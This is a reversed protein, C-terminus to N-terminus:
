KLKDEERLINVEHVVENLLQEREELLRSIDARSQELEEQLCALLVAQEKVTISKDNLRGRSVDLEEELFQMYNNEEIVYFARGDVIKLVQAYVDNLQQTAIIQDVLDKQTSSLDIQTGILEDKATQLEAERVGLYNDLIDILKDQDASQDYNSATPQEDIWLFVEFEETPSAEAEALQREASIQMSPEIMVATETRQERGAQFKALAKEVFQEDNLYSAPEQEEEFRALELRFLMRNVESDLRAVEEQYQTLAQNAQNVIMHKRIPSDALPDASAGLCDLYELATENGSDIMLAKQFQRIAGDENGKDLEKIGSHVLYEAGRNEALVPSNASFYFISFVLLSRILNFGNKM